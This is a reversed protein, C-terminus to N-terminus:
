GFIKTFMNKKQIHVLSCSDLQEDDGILNMEEMVTEATEILVDVELSNVDASVYSLYKVKDSSFEVEYILTYKM